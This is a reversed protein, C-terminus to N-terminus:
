AGENHPAGLPSAVTLRKYLRELARAEGQLRLVDEGSASVLGDKAEEFLADVLKRANDVEYITSKQLESALRQIEAKRDKKM